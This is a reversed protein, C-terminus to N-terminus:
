PAASPHARGCAPTLTHFAHTGEHHTSATMDTMDSLHAHGVTLEDGALNHGLARLVLTIEALKLKGAGARDFLTFAEECDAEQEKSLSMVGRARHEPSRQSVPDAAAPDQRHQADSRPSPLPPFANKFHFHPRDSPWFALCFPRVTDLAPQLLRIIRPTGTAATRNRSDCSTDSGHSGDHVCYLRSTWCENATFALIPCPATHM